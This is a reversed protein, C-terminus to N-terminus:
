PTRTKNLRRVLNIGGFDKPNEATAGAVLILMALSGPADDGGATVWTRASRELFRTSVRVSKRAVRANALALTAWATGAYDTGPYGGGYPLDGKLDLLRTGLYGLAATKTSARNRQKGQCKLRPLSASIRAAEPLILGGGLTWAAQATANDNVDPASTDFALGGRDARAATCRQQVSRLYRNKQKGRVATVAANALATSNTDSAARPAPYYAWGDDDNRHKVLWQAAKRAAKRDGTQLLAAAAMATTNSDQGSFNDADPAQCDAKTDARYAMFGGDACQQRKLWRVAAKPVAKDASRLALISLAQRYGGDYTPDAAGYLGADDASAPTASLLMGGLAAGAILSKTFM